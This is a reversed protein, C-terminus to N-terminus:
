ALDALAALCAEIREFDHGIDKIESRVEDIACRVVHPAESAAAKLSKEDDIVRLRDTSPAENDTGFVRHQLAALRNAYGNSRNALIMLERHLAGLVTEPAEVEASQNRDLERESM